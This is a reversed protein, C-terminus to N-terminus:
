GAHSRRQKLVSLSPMLKEEKAGRTVGTGLCPCELYVKRCCFGDISMTGGFLFFIQFTQILMTNPNDSSSVLSQGTEGDLWKKKCEIETTKELLSFSANEAEELM